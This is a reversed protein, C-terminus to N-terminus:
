WPRTSLPGLWGAPLSSQRAWHHWCTENQLPPPWGERLSMLGTSSQHCSGMGLGGLGVWLHRHPDYLLASHRLGPPLQPDHSVAPAQLCWWAGAEVWVRGHHRGAAFPWSHPQKRPDLPSLEQMSWGWPGVGRSPSLTGWTDVLWRGSLLTLLM